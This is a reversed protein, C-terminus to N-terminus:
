LSKPCPLELFFQSGCPLGEGICRFDDRQSEATNSIISNIANTKTSEGAGNQFSYPLARVPDRYIDNLATFIDVLLTASNLIVM